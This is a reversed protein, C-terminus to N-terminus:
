QSEYAVVEIELAINFLESNKLERPIGLPYFFVKEGLAMDISKYSSLIKVENEVSPESYWVQGQAVLLLRGDESYYPTLTAQIIINTGKLWVTVPNGSFTPIRTTERSDEFFVPEEGLSLIRYGINIQLADDIQLQFTDADQGSAGLAALFLLAIGLSRKM